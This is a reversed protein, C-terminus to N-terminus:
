RMMDREIKRSALELLGVGEALAVHGFPTYTVCGDVVAVVIAQSISIKGSMISEGLAIFSAAMMQDDLPATQEGESSILRLSM